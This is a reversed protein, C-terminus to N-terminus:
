STYLLCTHRLRNAIGGGDGAVFRTPLNLFEPETEPGAWVDATGALTVKHGHVRLWESLGLIHRTIGGMGFQTGMELVRLPQRPSDSPMEPVFLPSITRCPAIM